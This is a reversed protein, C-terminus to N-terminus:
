KLGIVILLNLQSFGVIQKDLPLIKVKDLIIQEISM